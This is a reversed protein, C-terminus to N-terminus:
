DLHGQVQQLHSTIVKRNKEDTTLNLCQIFSEKAEEYRGQAQYLVGLNYYAIAYGPEMRIVKLFIAEADDVRGQKSRTIGLMHLPEVKQPFKEVLYEFTNSAFELDPPNRNLAQSAENFRLQYQQDLGLDAKVIYDVKDRARAFSKNSPDAKYASDYAASAKDYFGMSEYLVGKDYYAQAKWEGLEIVKDFQALAEATLGKKAYAMGLLYQAVYNEPDSRTIQLLRIIADQIDGKDIMRKLTTLEDANHVGSSAIDAVAEAHRLSDGRVIIGWGALFILAALAIAKIGDLLLSQRRIIRKRTPGTKNEPEDM